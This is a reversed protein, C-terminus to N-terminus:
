TKVNGLFPRMMMSTLSLLRYASCGGTSPLLCCKFYMGVEWVDARSEVEDTSDANDSMVIRVDMLVTSMNPLLLVKSGLV